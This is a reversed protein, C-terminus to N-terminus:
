AAPDPPPARRARGAPRNGCPRPTRGRRPALAYFLRQDRGLPLAGVDCAPPRLPLLVLAPDVRGPQHEDVLGPGLGVHRREPAPAARAAASPRPAARGSSSWSRRPPAASRGPRPARAGRRGSRRRSSGARRRAPASASSGGPSMAGLSVVPDRSPNGTSHLSCARMAWPRRMRSRWHRKAWATGEPPLRGRDRSRRAGIRIFVEFRHQRGRQRLASRCEATVRGRRSCRM